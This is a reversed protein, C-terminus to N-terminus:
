TGGRNKKKKKAYGANITGGRPIAPLSAPRFLGRPTKSQLVGSAFFLLPRLLAARQPSNNLFFCCLGPARFISPIDPM